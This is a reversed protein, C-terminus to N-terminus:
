GTSHERMIAKERSDMEIRWLVARRTWATCLNSSPTGHRTNISINTIHEDSEYLVLLGSFISSTLPYYM